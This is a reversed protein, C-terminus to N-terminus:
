TIARHQSPFRTDFGIVWHIVTADSPDLLSM